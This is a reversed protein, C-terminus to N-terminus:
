GLGSEDVRLGRATVTGPDQALAAAVDADVVHHHSREGGGRGAPQAIRHVDRLAGVERERAADGRLVVLPGADLEHHLDLAAVALVDCPGQDHVGQLVGLM